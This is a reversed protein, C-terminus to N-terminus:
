TADEGETLQELMVLHTLHEAAVMAAELEARYLSDEAAIVNLFPVQGVRYGRLVAEVAAGASPIVQSMLLRLRAAGSAVGARVVQLEAELAVTEEVLEERAAEADAKAADALRGQKRGAWLPLRLGVFASFFDAGLPRAGYRTTINFDPRAGLQEV